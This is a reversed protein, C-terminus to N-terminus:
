GFSRRAAIGATQGTPAARQALSDARRGAEVAARLAGALVDRHYPKEILTLGEEVMPLAYHAYGTTLVVPLEPRLRRVTRALEIGSMGGPMVIDSMVLDIRQGHDLAALAAEGDPVREAQFGIERLLRITVEAVEGDDEVLLIHGPAAPPAIDDAGPPPERAPGNGRPLFLTISTGRGIESAIRASGGSQKVFGYVQSLGLGSGLGVAKTTFYPEFARAQVEAPMGTGTDSLTMAVFDGILGQGAADGPRLSQNRAAVRFRGGNPMADRANVGINLLALEFEAPDIIVPWLNGPIEVDIEINEPLSRALMEAIEPTRQSLDVPEPRLMQRRSFTLLQRTLRAGQKAARSIASARRAIEDAPARDHLLAANGSVVTLLNNFDHAIGGTLQGIAEMKQAQHLAAEAQEREKVERQLRRNAWALDRTREEVVGEIRRAYGTGLLLLAGLLGTSVVGAALVARSQWGRHTALYSATPTTEVAYRRGGFFFTDQYSVGDDASPFGDYLRKGQALDVLKVELISAFPLAIGSVFTGMRLAVAVVGPGNPGRLVAFVLLIGPQDGKEQVLRIPPTAIVRGTDIAEEVAAKRGPESFLDFGVIHQNGELPDVYTVPYYFSREGARRRKGSHDVERIEFGPLEAQQTKEFAARESLAVWPAWKVAQITPFRRLLNKALHKFDARSVPPPRSFSRELQELFIEQDALGSHIKDVIEQSRLRFELLAEGREWSSVRVFIAAFLVFFLLMPLAVPMARSRWLRRPEGAIVLMLPLVMLVGLTDGIWWSLWNTAFDQHRVVGIAVLWSLSLTASTLCCLPSLLLFRALDRGADLATPCGIARRLVMGGVAAQLGSAAAIGAAAVVIQGFAQGLSHGIWFNLLLSGLFIWPLAARGWILIAAIAIGAPPFMPAAYGPPVMALGLKGSIVYAVPLLLHAPRLTAERIFLFARRLPPMYRGFTRAQDEVISAIVLTLLREPRRDVASRRPMAIGVAGAASV